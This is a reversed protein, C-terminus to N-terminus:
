DVKVIKRIVSSGSRDMISLLYMGSEFKFLDIEKKYIGKALPVSKILRGHLDLISAREFAANGNNFDLTIHSSTPNPYITINDAEENALASILDFCINDIKYMNPPFTDRSDVKMAMFRYPLEMTNNIEFSFNEWGKIRNSLNIASLEIVQGGCLESQNQLTIMTNTDLKDTFYQKLAFNVSKLIKNSEKRDVVIIAPKTKSGAMLLSGQDLYGDEHIIVNDDCSKWDSIGVDRLLGTNGDNNLGSNPVNPCSPNSLCFIQQCFTDRCTTTSSPRTVIMCVENLGSILQFPGVTSNYGSNNAVVVGNVKWTVRDCVSLRHPTFKKDCSNIVHNILFGQNVDNKFQNDCDCNRFSFSDGGVCQTLFGPAAPATWCSGHILIHINNGFTPYLINYPPLTRSFSAGHDGFPWHAGSYYGLDMFLEHFCDNSSFCQFNGKFDISVGSPPIPVTGTTLLDFEWGNTYKLRLNSFSSPSNYRCGNCCNNTIERKVTHMFCNSEGDKEVFNISILYTGSVVYQHMVNEHGPNNTISGDGWEISQVQDCDFLGNINVVVKCDISPNINIPNVAVTVSGEVRDIFEQKYICCISDCGLVIVTDRCLSTNGCQDTATWTVITTGENYSATGDNTNTYSNVVSPNSDCQDTVVPSLLAVKEKCKGNADKLGQVVIKRGCLSIVPAIEDKITIIQTCTSENGCDDQAKWNRVIKRLCPIEEILVDTPGTLTPNTDFDDTVTPLGTNTPDTSENCQISINAPCILVPAQTDGNAVITLEKEIVCEDGDIVKVCLPHSGNNSFIFQAQTGTADIMGDCNFDWTITYPTSGNTIIINCLVDNCERETASVTFDMGCPEGCFDTRNWDTNMYNGQTPSPLTITTSSIEINNFSLQFPNLFTTISDMCPLQFDNNTKLYTFDLNTNILGRGDTYFLDGSFSSSLALGKYNTNASSNEVSKQWTLALNPMAASGVVSLKQLPFTTSNTNQAPKYFSPLYYSGAVESVIDYYSLTNKNEYATGLLALKSDTVFLLGSQIGSNFRTGSFVINANPLEVADLVEMDSQYLVGNTFNGAGNLRVVMGFGNNTENGMLLISGDSLATLGRSFEMDSPNAFFSFEKVFNVNTGSSCFPRLNVLVVKDQTAAGGQIGKTGLIYYPFNPNSANAHRIIKRFSERGTQNFINVCEIANTEANIQIMFSGNNIDFPLTHGVIYLSTKGVPGQPPIFVMDNIQSPFDLEKQWIINGSNADLKTITGYLSGNNDEQGLIYVNNGDNKILSPYNDRSNGYKFSPQAIAASMFLGALVLIVVEKM